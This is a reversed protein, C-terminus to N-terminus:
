LEKDAEEERLFKFLEPMRHNLSIKGFLIQLTQEKNLGLKKALLEDSLNNDEQYGLIKQCLEYKAKQLSTPNEPLDKA